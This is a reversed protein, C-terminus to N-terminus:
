YAVSSYSRFTEGDMTVGEVVVNDIQGITEVPIYNILYDISELDYIPTGDLVLIQDWLGSGNTRDEKNIWIVGGLARLITRLDQLGSQEIRDEVIVKSAQQEYETRYFKGPASVEIEEM